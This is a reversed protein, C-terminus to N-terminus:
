QLSEEEDLGGPGCARSSESELDVTWSSSDKTPLCLRQTPQLTPSHGCSLGRTRIALTTNLAIGTCLLNSKTSHTKTTYGHLALIGHLVVNPTRYAYLGGGGWLVTNAFM